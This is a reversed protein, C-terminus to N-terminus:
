RPFGIVFDMEVQDWKWEPITIPQLTGAPRQHKAKIRRCVDCEAVYRAIDRKMNSWWFRRRIDQYMKTSGPHISLPTDHAEKMVKQTMDLNDKSPVVLRGNFFLAGNDDVTFFSPRGEALDRKIKEVQSDYHQITKIDGVLDSEVTLTNLSGKPVVRLNMKQFQEPPPALYGPPVIHLNLKSFEEHLLPQVKQVKLHNCYSKRSLADVMVNAKGPTYSIGLNYDSIAEM